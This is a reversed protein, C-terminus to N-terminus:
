CCGPSAAKVRSGRSQSHPPPRTWESASLGPWAACPCCRGAQGRPAEAVRLPFCKGLTWLCVRPQQGVDREPGKRHSWCASRPRTALSHSSHLLLGLQGSVQEARSGSLNARLPHPHLILLPGRVEGWSGKGKKEAKKPTAALRM